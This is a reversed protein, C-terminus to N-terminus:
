SIPAAVVIDADYTSRVIGYFNSSLAGVIMSSINGAEFADVLRAAAQMGNM